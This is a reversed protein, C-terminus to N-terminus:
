LIEKIKEIDESDIWVCNSIINLVNEKSDASIPAVRGLGDIITINYISNEKEVRIHANGKLEAIYLDHSGNEENLFRKINNLM